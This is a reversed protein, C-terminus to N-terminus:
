SEGQEGERNMKSIELRKREGGEGGRGLELREKEL